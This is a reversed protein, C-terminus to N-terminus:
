VEHLCHEQIELEELDNLPVTLCDITGNSKAPYTLARKKTIVWDGAFQKSTAKTFRIKIYDTKAIKVKHRSPWAERETYKPHWLEILTMPTHRCTKMPKGNEMGTFYREARM